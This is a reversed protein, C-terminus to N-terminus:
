CRRSYVYTKIGSLVGIIFKWIVILRRHKIKKNLKYFSLREKAIEWQHSIRESAGGYNYYAVPADIDTVKFGANKIRYLLEADALYKYDMNFGGFQSLVCKRTLKAQHGRGIWKNKGNSSVRCISGNLMAINASVPKRDSFFSLFSEKTLWDDSGLYYIWEGTAMKWGKNFADYIGKDDESIYRIRNDRDAYERVINITSDKSKGDVVICEWNQFLQGVVSELARGITRESNYTAIIISVLCKEM